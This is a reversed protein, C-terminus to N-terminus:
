LEHHHLRRHLNVLVTSRPRYEEVLVQNAYESSLSIPDANSADPRVLVPPLIATRARPEVPHRITMEEDTDNSNTSNSRLHSTSTNQTDARLLANTFRSSISNRQRVSAQHNEDPYIWAALFSLKFFRGSQTPAVHRRQLGM